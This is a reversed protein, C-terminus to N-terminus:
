LILDARRGSRWEAELIGRSVNAAAFLVQLDPGVIMALGQGGIQFRVAGDELGEGCSDAIDVTVRLCKAAVISMEGFSFVSVSGLRNM